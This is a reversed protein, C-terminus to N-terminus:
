PMRTRRSPAINECVNTCGSKSVALPPSRAVPPTSCATLLAQLRSPQCTCGLVTSELAGSGETSGESRARFPARDHNPLTGIPRFMAELKLQLIDVGSPTHTSSQWQYSLRDRCSALHNISASVVNFYWCSPRISAGCTQGKTASAPDHQARDAQISACGPFLPPSCKQM